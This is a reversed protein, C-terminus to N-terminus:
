AGNGTTTRAMDRNWLSLSTASVCRPRNSPLTSTTIPVCRSSDASVRKLSSPSTIMSSSCRNPTSCLSYRFRSRVSTSTSAMDAVGIGRVSSIPTVPM